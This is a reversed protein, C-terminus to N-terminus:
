KFGRRYMKVMKILNNILIPSFILFFGFIEFIIDDGPNFIYESIYAFMLIWRIVKLITARSICIGIWVLYFVICIAIDNSM